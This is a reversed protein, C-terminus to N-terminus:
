GARSRARISRTRSRWMGGTAGQRRASRTSPAAERASSRPRSAVSGEALAVVRDVAYGKAIGGLDLEVGPQDFAITRDAPNMVVHSAGVHRRAVALEDDSPMRGEGRFFGWAKMLPGVTIDFAGESERNYRMAEAISTTCSPM